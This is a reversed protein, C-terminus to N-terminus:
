GIAGSAPPRAFLVAISALVPLVLLAAIATDYGGLFDYALGFPIPGLAAGTVGIAYGFGRISGLHRRGFYAPWAVDVAVMWLGSSAGRWVSYALALAPTDARLLWVMAVALCVQGAALVYRIPIRDVLVGALLTMPLGVISEVTFTAAALTGPLGRETFIAVQNFSLGTVVLSPVVSAGILAWFSTTHMAQRLNPGRDPEVAPTEGDSVRVGDPLQGIDEPRDRLLLAVVPLLVFWIVLSDLRWATRWGVAGILLENVPPVVALSLTAALGLLSFARGRRRVFWHPVLTRAALTLIGSGCSRLLAFGILLTLAGNVASMLLLALGFGVTALTMVLRNGWRDIQRGVLLLAGASALTGVAYATSFLSRSWGLEALMPDVFASVGYTQAPGSLFVALAAIALM